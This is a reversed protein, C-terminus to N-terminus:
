MAFIMAKITGTTGVSGYAELACGIIRHDWEYGATAGSAAYPGELCFADVTMALGCGTYIDATTSSDVRVASHYGYVQLLGYSGSAITEAVIGAFAAQRKLATSCKTVNLGDADSLDWMVAQGNTLSATDYGNKVVIFVREPDSRKIRQVLM